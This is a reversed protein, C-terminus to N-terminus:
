KVVDLVDGDDMVDVLRQTRMRQKGAVLVIDNAVALDHDDVLEGPAHHRASAIRLAQMLREFGLLM